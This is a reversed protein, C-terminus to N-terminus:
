NYIFKKINCANIIYYDVSSFEFENYLLNLFEPFLSRIEKRLCDFISVNSNRYINNEQDFSYEHNSIYNKFFDEKIMNM